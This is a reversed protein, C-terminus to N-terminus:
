SLPDHVGTGGTGPYRGALGDDMGMRRTYGALWFLGASQPGTSGQAARGQGARGQRDVGSWQVPSPSALKPTPSQLGKWFRGHRRLNTREEGLEVPADRSLAEVRLKAARQLGKLVERVSGSM